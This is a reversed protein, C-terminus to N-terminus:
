EGASGEGKGGGEGLAMKELSRGKIKMFQVGEM